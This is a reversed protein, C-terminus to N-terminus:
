DEKTRNPSHTQTLDIGYAMRIVNLIDNTWGIVGHWRLWQDFFDFGSMTLIERDQSTDDEELGRVQRLEEMTTEWIKQDFNNM